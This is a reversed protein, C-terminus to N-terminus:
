FMRIRARVVRSTKQKHFSSFNCHLSKVDFCEFENTIIYVKNRLNNRETNKLQSTGNQTVYLIRSNYYLSAALAADCAAYSHQKRRFYYNHHMYLEFYFLM